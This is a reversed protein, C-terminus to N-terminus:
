TAALIFVVSYSFWMLVAGAVGLWLVAKGTVRRRQLQTYLYLIILSSLLESSYQKAEAAHFIIPPALCFVVLALWIYGPKLFYRCIAYFVFLSCLNCLLPFLRLALENPTFITIFLKQMILFGLPAKQYYLLPETLLKHLSYSVISNSLYAEDIWLSRNQFFYYLRLVVGIGLILFILGRSETLKYRNASLAQM